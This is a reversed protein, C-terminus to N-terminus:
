ANLNKINSFRIMLNCKKKKKTRLIYTLNQTLKINNVINNLFKHKTYLKSTLFVLFKPM